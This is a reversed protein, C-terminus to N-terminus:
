RLSEVQPTTVEGILQFVDRNSSIDGFPRSESSTVLLPVNEDRLSPELPCGNHSYQTSPCWVSSRLPHDSFVVMTFSPQTRSMREAMDGILRAAKAINARYHEGLTGTGGEGPPHPLPMHLYLLGGRHWSPARWMAAEVSSGLRAWVQGGLEGCRQRAAEGGYAALLESRRQIACWWRELDGYPSPPSLVECSRLGQIACYPIYFGVVDIDPRSAQIRDFDLVQTGSCVTHWGCPKAQKFDHQSFLSPVVKSTGDGAPRLTQHYVPRGARKMVEAIPGSASDNLEDLLIVVTLRPASAAARSSLSLIPAENSAVTRPPWLLHPARWTALTPQSIVFIVAATALARRLASWGGRDLRWAALGGFTLLAVLSGSLGFIAPVLQGGVTLGWMAFTGILLGRVLRRARESCQVRRLGVSGILLMALVALLLMALGLMESSIRYFVERMGLELAASGLVLLGAVLDALAERRPDAIERAPTCAAPTM